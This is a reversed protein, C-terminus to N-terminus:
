EDLCILELSDDKNFMMIILFLENKNMQKPIKM